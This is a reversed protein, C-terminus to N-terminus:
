WRSLSIAVDDANTTLYGGSSAMADLFETKGKAADVSSLRLAMIMRLSNAFKKWRTINGDLLIDGKVPAGGDFQGVAQKLEKFLDTYIDQQKDYPIQGNFNL